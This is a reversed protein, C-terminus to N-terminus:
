SIWGATLKGDVRPLVIERMVEDPRLVTQRYGYFFDTLAVTRETTPSILVVSSDLTLLVPASDGIPSATV